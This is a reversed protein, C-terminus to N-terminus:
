DKLLIQNSYFQKKTQYQSLLISSKEIAGQLSNSKNKKAENRPTVDKRKKKAKDITIVRGAVVIGILIM